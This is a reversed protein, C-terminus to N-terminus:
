IYKLSQDVKYPQEGFAACMLIFRDHLTLKTYRNVANSGEKHLGAAYQNIQVKNMMDVHTKRALKSSGLEYLPRYENDKTSQNFVKCGRDIGCYQLLLRIKKSYGSKGSVYKLIHFGFQYKLIIDLAMQTLPTEVGERNTAKTKIPLYRVYAFGTDDIAINNMNMAKFDSIRCGLLCQLIFADKTEQLSNPVTTDTLLKFERDTLFVPDDYKEALAANRRQKGLKRFPSKDIQEENEMTTFFAQLQSLKQAVTNTSRKQTPINVPNLGTYLGRWKEVYLYENLLFDRYDMVMEKDFDCTKIDLKKNIILFRNLERQTVEYHKRRGEGIVGDRHLIEIFASFDALFTSEEKKEVALPHLEANILREFTEGDKNLGKDLMLTYAKRMVAIESVVAEHLSRNYVTVKPRVMGEPTFKDLEKLNAVIDSKHYLDAKRGDQLRFRLRIEGEKKTTRKFITIREM